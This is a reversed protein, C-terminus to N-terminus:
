TRRGVALVALVALAAVVGADRPFRVRPVPAFRPTTRISRDGTQVDHRVGRMRGAITGQRRTATEFAARAAGTPVGGRERLGGFRSQRM